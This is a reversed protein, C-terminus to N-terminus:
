KKWPPLGCRPHVGLRKLRRSLTSQTLEQGQVALRALLDTQDTIPFAELLQLILADLDMCSHHM